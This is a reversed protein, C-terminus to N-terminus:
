QALFGRDLTGLIEPQRNRLNKKRWTQRHYPNYRGVSSDIMFSGGEWIRM